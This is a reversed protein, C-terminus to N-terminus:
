PTNLYISSLVSKINPRKKADPQLMSTLLRQLFINRVGSIGLDSKKQLYLDMTEM